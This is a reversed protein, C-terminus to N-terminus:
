WMFPLRKASDLVLHDLRSPRGPATFRCLDCAETSKALEYMEHAKAKNIPVIIGHDYYTGLYQYAMASQLRDGKLALAELLNVVVPDDILGWLAMSALSFVADIRDNEVAM